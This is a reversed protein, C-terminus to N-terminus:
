MPALVAFALRALGIFKAHFGANGHGMATAQHHPDSGERSIGVISVGECRLQLLRVDQQFVYAAHRFLDHDIQTLPANVMIIRAHFDDM